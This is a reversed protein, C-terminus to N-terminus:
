RPNFLNRCHKLFMVVMIPDIRTNKKAVFINLKTKVFSFIMPVTLWATKPNVLLRKITISITFTNKRTIPHRESGRTFIINNPGSAQDRAFGIPISGFANPIIMMKLQMTPSM